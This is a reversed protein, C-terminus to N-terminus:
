PTAAHARYAPVITHIRFGHSPVPEARKTRLSRCEAQKIFLRTSCVRPDRLRGARPLAGTPGELAQKFDPSALTCSRSATQTARWSTWRGNAYSKPCITRQGGRRRLLPHCRDVFVPAPKTEDVSNTSPSPKAGCSRVSRAAPRRISACVPAGIASLSMARAATAPM